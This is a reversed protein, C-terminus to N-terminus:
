EKDEEADNDAADDADFDFRERIRCLPKLECYRCTVSPQKPDVAAAGAMFEAALRELVKRWHQLIAEWQNPLDLKFLLEPARLDPAIDEQEAIGKFAVKDATIQGFAAGSVRKHNAIVYLPVQPENPREGAWDKIDPNGTKYDLVFLSGDALKDVRDYRISIPMKALKVVKRGENFIVTFPARQKELELWALIHQKLRTIELEIFRQGIFHKQRVKLLATDLASEILTLLATEDLQLLHTQTKLRRWLIEMADHVLNGREMANLGINVEPLDGSHLRHRAFAQFPCAAQNKLIQSGGRIKESVFVRPGVNDLSSELEQSDFLITKLSANNSPYGPIESLAPCLQIALQSASLQKDNRTRANSLILQPTSHYFGQTLQQAYHLEREASSQPIQKEVQLALPLLPNPQPPPPWNDDDLNLWWLKDFPLGAAELLGLIQVPSSRTQPQFSHQQLNKAFISVARPYPIKDVVFDLKAFQELNEQWSNFQQYEISDLTRDGPWGLTDLLEVFQSAWQSPYLSKKGLSELCQIFERLRHYFDECLYHDDADRLEAALTRLQKLSVRHESDERLQIDMQTRATLEAQQGIFPSRIIKSVQEIDQHPKYCQLVALSCAVMPTQSLPTGASINFGPAHQRTEPFISANDFTRTFIASVQQRQQSLNPLVIAICQKPDEKVAHLAWDAAAQIEEREDTFEFRKLQPTQAECHFRKIQTGIVRLQEFLQEITPPLDNFGYLWLQTPASLRGDQLAASIKEPLRASPLLQRDRCRQEFIESWARFLPIGPVAGDAEELQWEQVLRWADQALKATATSNLLPPSQEDTDILAEWLVAEQQPTLLQECHESRAALQQWQQQLWGSLAYCPLTNFARDGHLSAYRDQLFRSLRKNPTLILRSSATNLRKFAQALQQDFITSVSM